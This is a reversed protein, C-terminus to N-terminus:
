HKGSLQMGRLCDKIMFKKIKINNLLSKSEILKSLGNRMVHINEVGLFQFKINEYFAENEYGKGAARNAMANIKPRTDVVYMFNSNKNTRLVHNLMQEDELCRASFGSLPQSCRSISARNNHLYSLVPLRGKSRFRSSGMLITTNASAPVYLHKPYTDCLEYDKNLTTLCWHENPVGMRHYESQLDFNWGSTKPIDDVSSTYQFCYLNEVNNPQSLQQLTTYIDHCDRERPIVFTVSLFTKCRILLPSGTTTLPLKEVNAIHM